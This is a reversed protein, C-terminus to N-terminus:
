KEIYSLFEDREKKSGNNLNSLVANFICWKMDKEQNLLSYIMVTFCEPTTKTFIFGKGNDNNKDLSGRLYICGDTKNDPFTKLISIVDLDYDTIQKM